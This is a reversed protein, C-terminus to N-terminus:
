PSRPTRHTRERVQTPFISSVAPICDKMYALAPLRYSSTFTKDWELSLRIHRGGTLAPHRSTLLPPLLGNDNPHDGIKTRYIRTPTARPPRRSHPLSLHLSRLLHVLVGRFLIM